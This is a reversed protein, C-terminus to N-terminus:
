EVRRWRKWRERRERRTQRAGLVCHIVELIIKRKICRQDSCVTLTKLPCLYDTSWTLPAPTYQVSQAGCSRCNCSLNSITRMPILRATPYYFLTRERVSKFFYLNWFTSTSLCLHLYLPTSLHKINWVPPLTVALPDEWNKNSEMICSHFYSNGLKSFCQM